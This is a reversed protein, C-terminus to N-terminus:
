IVEMSVRQNSKMSKYISPPIGTVKKFQNSLHAVSSYRLKYSIETLNMEDDMLLEKVRETKYNIINQRITMGKMMSLVNALYTYALGLKMSIYHSYNVAPLNYVFYEMDIIANKIREILINKRDDLLELGYKQLNAKLQRRQDATLDGPVDIVGLEVYPNEIGIKKMEDVVVVKCLNSVMHKIFLKM